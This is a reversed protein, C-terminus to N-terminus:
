QSRLRAEYINLVGDRDSAFYLRQGDPSLWPDREDADTNLSGLPGTIPETRVSPIDLSVEYVLDSVRAARDDALALPIGPAIEPARRGPMAVFAVLGIALFAVAILVFRAM